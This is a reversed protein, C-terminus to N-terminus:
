ESVEEVIEVVRREWIRKYNWPIFVVSCCIGLLFIVLGWVTYFGRFEERGTRPLTSPSTGAPVGGISYSSGYSSAFVEGRYGSRTMNVTLVEDELESLRAGDVFGTYGGPGYVKVDLTNSSSYPFYSTLNQTRAIGIVLEAGGTSNFVESVPTSIDGSSNIQQAIVIYDNASYNSVGQANVSISTPSSPSATLPANEYSYPLGDDDSEEGDSIVNFYLTLDDESLDTESNTITVHHTFRQGLNNLDTDRDDLGDKDLSASSTGYTIYGTVADDTVWAVSWVRFDKNTVIVNQPTNSSILSAPTQPVEGENEEEETEEEETEVGERAMVENKGLTITPATAINTGGICIYGKPCESDESSEEEIPTVVTTTSDEEISQQTEKYYLFYFAAGVAGLVVVAILIVTLFTKM